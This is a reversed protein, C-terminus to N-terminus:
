RTRLTKVLNVVAKGAVEYPESAAFGHARVFRLLAHDDAVERMWAREAGLAALWQEVAALLRSPVAEGDRWDAVLFVRFAGTPEGPAREIACYGVVAGRQVAVAERREVGTRRRNAVWEADIGGGHDGEQVADSALHAIQAWDPDRPARLEPM